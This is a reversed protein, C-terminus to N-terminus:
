LKSGVLQSAIKKKKQSLSSFVVLNLALVTFTLALVLYNSHNIKPLNCKAAQKCDEAENM